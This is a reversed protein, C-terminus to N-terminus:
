KLLNNKAIKNMILINARIFMKLPPKKQKCLDRDCYLDATGHIAQKFNVSLADQNYM